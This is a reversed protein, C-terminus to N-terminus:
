QEFVDPPIFFVDIMLFYTQSTSYTYGLKFGTLYILEARWKLNSKYLWM